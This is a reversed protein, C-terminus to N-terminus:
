DRSRRRWRAQAERLWFRAEQAASRLLDNARERPTPEYGATHDAMWHPDTPMQPIEAWNLAPAEGTEVFVDLREELFQRVWRREVHPNHLLFEANGALFKSLSDEGERWLGDAGRAHGFYILMGEVEDVTMGLVRALDNSEWAKEGLFKWLRDPRAGNAEWDSRHSEIADVGKRGRSLRDRVWSRVDELTSAAGLVEFTLRLLEIFAPFDALVGNGIGPQRLVYIRTPDGVFVGADHARLVESFPEDAWQGAWRVHGKDDVLTLARRFRISSRGEVYFDIFPFIDYDAPPGESGLAATGRTLISHLTESGEVEIEAKRREDWPRLFDDGRLGTMFPADPNGGEAVTIRTSM